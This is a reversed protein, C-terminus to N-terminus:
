KYEKRMEDGVLEGGSTPNREFGDRVAQTAQSTLKAGSRASGSRLRFTFNVNVRVMNTFGVM